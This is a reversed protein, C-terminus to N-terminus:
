QITIKEVYKGFNTNINLFYIGKELNSINIQTLKNNIITNYVEKGTIDTILIEYKILTEKNTKL